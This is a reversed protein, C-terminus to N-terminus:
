TTCLRHSGGKKTASCHSFLFITNKFRRLGVPAALPERDRVGKTSDKLANLLLVGNIVQERQGCAPLNKLYTRTNMNNEMEGLRIKVINFALENILDENHKM